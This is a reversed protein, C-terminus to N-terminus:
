CGRMCNAVMGPLALLMSGAADGVALKTPCRFRYTDSADCIRFGRQHGFLSRCMTADSTGCMLLCRDSQMARAVYSWVVIHVHNCREYWVHAFLSRTADSTGCMLLCRDPQM